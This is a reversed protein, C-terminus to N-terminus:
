YIGYNLEVYWQKFKDCIEQVNKMYQELQFPLVEVNELKPNFFAGTDQKFTLLVPCISQAAVIINKVSGLDAGESLQFVQVSTVVLKEVADLFEELEKM